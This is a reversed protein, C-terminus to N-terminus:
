APDSLSLPDHSIYGYPRTHPFKWNLGYIIHPRIDPFGLYQPMNLASFRVVGGTFAFYGSFNLRFNYCESAAFCWIPTGSPCKSQQCFLGYLKM